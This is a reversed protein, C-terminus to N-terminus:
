GLRHTEVRHYSLMQATPLINATNIKHMKRRVEKVVLPWQNESHGPWKWIARDRKFEIKVPTLSLLLV